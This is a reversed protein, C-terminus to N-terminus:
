VMSALEARLGAADAYLGGYGEVQKYGIESLMRMIGLPTCPRPGPRGLSLNGANVPHFGDADKHPLVSTIIENADLQKPLPLQVLVGHVQADGNLQSIRKLVETQTASADFHYEWANFGAEKAAKQKGTVYIKSAPDEGVRVVALGPVVGRESKLQAVRGAVEARVKAAIAKGDILQAM